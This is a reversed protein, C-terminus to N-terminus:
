IVVESDAIIMVTVTGGALNIYDIRLWLNKCEVEPVVENM